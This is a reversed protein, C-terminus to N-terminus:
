FDFLNAQDFIEPKEPLAWLHEKKGYSGKVTEQTKIIKGDDTLNTMARRNSTIPWKQDLFDHVMSPSMPEGRQMVKLIVVEQKVAQKSSEFFEDFSEKNTNYFPTM